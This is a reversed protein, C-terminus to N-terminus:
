ILGLISETNNKSLTFWLNECPSECTFTFDSIINFKIDSKVYVCIGGVNGRQSPVPHFTYGNLLSAFHNLNTNHVETLCICDVSLEISSLLSALEDAHKNLSRVNLHFTSFCTSDKSLQNITDVTLYRGNETALDFQDMFNIFDSSVSAYGLEDDCVPPLSGVM